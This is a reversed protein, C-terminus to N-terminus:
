LCHKDRGNAGHGLSYNVCTSHSFQFLLSNVLRRPGSVDPYPEFDSCWNGAMVVLTDIKAAAEPYREILAKLSTQGGVVLYWWDDRDSDMLMEAMYEVGNPIAEESAYEECEPEMAFGLIGPIACVGGRQDYGPFTEGIAVPIDTKESLTLQASLCKASLAPNESTTVILKTDILDDSNLLLGLAVFLM